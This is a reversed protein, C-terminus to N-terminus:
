PKVQAAIEDDSFRQGVIIRKQAREVTVGLAAAIQRLTMGEQKMRWARACDVRHRKDHLKGGM